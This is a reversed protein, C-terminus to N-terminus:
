SYSRLQVFLLRYSVFLEFIAHRFKKFDEYLQPDAFNLEVNKYPGHLLLLLILLIIPLSAAALLAPAFAEHNMLNGQQFRAPHSSTRNRLLNAAVEPVLLTKRGAEPHNNSNIMSEQVKYPVQDKGSNSEPSWRSLFQEVARYRALNRSTHTLRLPRLVLASETAPVSCTGLLSLLKAM